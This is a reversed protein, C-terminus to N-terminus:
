EEIEKKEVIKTAAYGFIFIIWAIHFLDFVLGLFLFIGTCIAYILDEKRKQEKSMKRDRSVSESNVTAYIMMGVSIAIIILITPVFLQYNDVGYIFISVPAMIIMAVAIGLITKKRTNIKSVDEKEIVKGKLIEDVTINYIRALEVLTFADPLNEGREWKSVAQFSIDLKEALDSQTLGNQKRLSILLEAIRNEKM